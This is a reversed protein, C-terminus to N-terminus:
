KTSKEKDEIFQNMEYPSLYNADRNEMLAEHIEYTVKNWDHEEKWLPEAMEKEWEILQKKLFDFEEPHNERIDISEGLDNGLNYMRYGYDDLRILKFDNHRAGAMQDKRWFLLEHPNGNKENTLFPLLNVGDSSLDENIGSAKLSTQFIDFVSTLGNFNKGGSIKEPWSVVFPVRHGGEYKNGKWGKLPANNSSNNAAGGNDSLFFILTNDYIGKEKLKDTIKGINEDLSWTMAALKQRKHGTYKELHDRKAHMPTHVANPAWYMFFPGKCNEIFEVAKDGLVDTLYGDFDVRSYNHLLANHNGDVDTNKDFWYPRSGGLFGYFEDFGRQNPHFQETEGVHWKGLAITNYGQNKLQNAITREKVDIGIGKPPLNCEFGFRQQYKGTLLGARSPACVTASVHADTFVVGDYAIEDLRPTDLDKCGMFGFDAYGADDALLIIINPKQENKCAMATFAVIYIILIRFFNRM